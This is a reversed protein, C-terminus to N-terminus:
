PHKMHTLWKNFMTGKMTLMTKGAWKYWELNKEIEQIVNSKVTAPPDLSYSGLIDYLNNVNIKQWKGYGKVCHKTDLWYQQSIDMSEYDATDVSIKDHLYKVESIYNSDIKSMLECAISNMNAAM